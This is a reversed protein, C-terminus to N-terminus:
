AHIKIKELQRRTEASYWIEVFERISAAERRHMEELVPQRLLLKISRFAAPPKAALEQLRRRAEDLLTVEPVIADVLGLALAQEAPYLAGSYVLDQARREGLWFRLLALSGAFLSSGFGIENLGIKANEKAMVRADCATALMCGGAVAHGNIAAVVPKPHAFLTRYLATFKELYAAFAEKPAEMFEPIDFGFSFFKGSGTLLIARTSSDAALDRFCLSLEDVVQENLANVKGRELRVEAIGGQVTQRVFIM